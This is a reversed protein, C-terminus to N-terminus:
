MATGARGALAGYDSIYRNGFGQVQEIRRNREIEWEDPPDQRNWATYLQRDQNSLRFGYTDAMYLMTRAIDGRVADPPQVRRISADIRIGLAIADLKALILTEQYNQIRKM